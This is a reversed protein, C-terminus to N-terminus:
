SPQDEVTVSMGPVVAGLSHAPVELLADVAGPSTWRPCENQVPATCPALSDTTLVKGDAIWAIDLPVAMGAMWVQQESRTGFRFLMGSGASLSARGSLGDRQQKETQAVEVRFQVPVPGIKVVATLPKSSTCGTGALLAAAAVAAAVSRLVRRM